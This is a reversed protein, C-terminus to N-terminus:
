RSGATATGSSRGTTSRTGTSTSQATTTQRGNAHIQDREDAKEGTLAALFGHRVKLENNVDDIGFITEVIDEAMRKEGRDEVVGRLTAIGNQVNVEIESADIDPNRALAENVEERIRDDSRRWGKPGRGAFNGRSRQNPGYRDRYEPGYRGRDGVNGYETSTEYAGYSGMSEKGGYEGRGYRTSYGSPGYGPGVYGGYGGGYMASTDRNPGRDYYAAPSGRESGYYPDRDYQNGYYGGRERMAYGSEYESRNRGRDYEDRGMHQPGGWNGQQSATWNDWGGAGRMRGGYDNTGNPERGYRNEMDPDRDWGRSREGYDRYAM